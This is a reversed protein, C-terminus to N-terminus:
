CRAGHWRAQRGTLRPALFFGNEGLIIGVFRSRPVAVILIDEVRPLGHELKRTCHFRAFACGDQDDWHVRFIYPGFGSDPDPMSTARHVTGERMIREARRIDRRVRWRVIVAPVLGVFVLLLVLPHAPDDSTAPPQHPGHSTGVLLGIAVAFLVPALMLFGMFNALRRTRRALGPLYREVLVDSGLLPTVAHETM